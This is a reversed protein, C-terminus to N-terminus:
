TGVIFDFADTLTTTKPNVPDRQWGQVNVQQGASMPVGLLGPFVGQIIDNFDLSYAGDCLGVTGNTNGSAGPIGNLRQTPPKVCLTSITNWTASNAGTIGYFVVGNVQANMGGINLTFASASTASPSGSFTAVSNCGQTSTAGTQCDAITVPNTAFCLEWSALMGSDYNVCWDYIRMTWTGSSIPISELLTNNVGASGSPWTGFSQIYRTPASSTCSGTFPLGGWGGTCPTGAGAVQDVIEYNGLFINSCGGCGSGNDGQYLLHDGGSPDELVVMSDTTWTHNWGLLRVMNVKTAGAPLTISAASVMPASPLTTPWVGNGGAVGYGSGAGGAVCTSSPPYPPPIPPTAVTDFCLDWSTLTGSDFGVWDYVHLKWTGNSIPIQEIPTNAIGNSGNPHGGFTQSYTGNPTVGPTWPFLPTGACQANNDVIVYNNATFDCNPDSPEINLVNHLSGSPTELVFQLDGGWTHSLGNLRVSKLLTAGGPVTVSLSGTLFASPLTGPFTGDGPDPIAGGTGGTVCQATATPAFTAAAAMAALCFGLRSSRIM